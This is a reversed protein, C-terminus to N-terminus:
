IPQLISNGEIMGDWLSYIGEENAKYIYKEHVDILYEYSVEPKQSCRIVVKYCVTDWLLCACKCEISFIDKGNIMSNIYLMLIEEEAIEIAQKYEKLITNRDTIGDLETGQIHLDWEPFYSLPYALYEVSPTGRYLLQYKENELKEVYEEKYYNLIKGTELDRLQLIGHQVGYEASMAIDYFDDFMSTDVNIAIKDEDFVAYSGIYKGDIVVTNEDTFTISSQLYPDCSVWHGQLKSKSERSCGMCCLLVITWGVLWMRKM